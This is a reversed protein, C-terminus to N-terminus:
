AKTAVKTINELGGLKDPHNIFYITLLLTLTKVPLFGGTFGDAATGIMFTGLQKFGRGGIIFIYFEIAGGILFNTIESIMIGFGTMSVFFELVDCIAVTMVLIISVPLSIKKEM